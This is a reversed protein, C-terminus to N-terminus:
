VLVPGSGDAILLRCFTCAALPAALTLACWCSASPLRPARWCCLTAAPLWRRTASRWCFARTHWTPPWWPPPAPPTPASAPAQVPLLFLLAHASACEDMLCQGVPLRQGEYLHLLLPGQAELLAAGRTRVRWALPTPSAASWSPSPTAPPLPRLCSRAQTQWCAPTSKTCAVWMCGQLLLLVAVAYPHFNRSHNQKNSTACCPSVTTTASICTDPWHCRGSGPAM